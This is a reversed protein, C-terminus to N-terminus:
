LGLEEQIDEIAGKWGSDFGADFDDFSKGEDEPEPEEYPAMEGFLENLDDLRVMEVEESKYKVNKIFDSWSEFEDQIRESVSVKYIKITM